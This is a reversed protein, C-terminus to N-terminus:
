AVELYISRGYVRISNSQVLDQIQAASLRALNALGERAGSRQRFSLALAVVGFLILIAGVPVIWIALGPDGEPHSIGALFFGLPLLLVGIRLAQQAPRALEIGFGKVCLAAIILLLGILAGHAHALRFLERRIEDQLYSPIKYGLLGELLLGVGMWLALSLWGQFLLGSLPDGARTKEKAM